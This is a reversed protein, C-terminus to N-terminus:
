AAVAAAAETLALYAHDASRRVEVRGSVGASLQVEFGHKGSGFGATRLDARYRNALVCMVRRADVLIDLCVPIEPHTESQAWGAVTDPGARDVYGRLPGSQESPINVGARAALRRQIAQLQFGDEIRPLCRGGGAPEHGPYAAHFEAANQFQARCDDDFFSEAPCGEAFIIEHDDLEIHIYTVSAVRAAQTISVGNVLLWAPVLVGDLCIAHGPSVSLDRAPVNEALAGRQILIPLMLPQGAVFRGSYSRRGIWKIPRAGGHLTMVRDGIALTEVAVEGQDTLILTGPCYCPTSTAVSLGAFSQGIGTAANGYTDQIAGNILGTSALTSVTQGSSPAYAFSLITGGSGSVYTAVGGDNLQLSANGTIFADASFTLALTVTDGTTVTGTTHGANGDIAAVAAGTVSLPTPPTIITPAAPATGKADTDAVQSSSLVTTRGELIIETGGGLPLVLDGNVVKQYELAYSGVNYSNGSFQLSDQSTFNDITYISGAFYGAGSGNGLAFDFINFDSGGVMVENGSGVSFYDFNGGGIFDASGSGGIFTAGAADNAANFTEQGPGAVVTAAANTPNSNASFDFYSGAGGFASVQVGGLNINYTGSSGTVTAAGGEDTSVVNYIGSAGYITTQAADDEVTGGSGVLAITSTGLGVNVLTSSDGDITATISENVNVINSFGTGAITAAGSALAILVTPPDTQASTSLGSLNITTGGAGTIIDQSTADITSPATATDVVYSASATITTTGGSSVTEITSPAAKDIDSALDQAASLDGQTFSFADLTIAASTGTGTANTARATLSSTAAAPLDITTSWTGNANATVTKLLTQGDYIGIPLGVDAADITGTISIDDNLIVPNPTAITLTPDSSM